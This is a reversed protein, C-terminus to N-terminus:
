SVQVLCPRTLLHRGCFQNWRTDRSRDYLTERLIRWRKSICGGSMPICISTSRFPSKGPPNHAAFLESMCPGIRCGVLVRDLGHVDCSSFLAQTPVSSSLISDLDCRRPQYSNTSPDLVLASVCLAARRSACSSLAADPDM